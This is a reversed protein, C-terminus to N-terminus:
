GKWDEKILGYIASDLYQGDFYYDQRFHAEKIFGLKTLLSQSASNLPNTNAMITHLKLIDFGFNIICKGAETAIGKNWYEQKLAYGVEGRNNKKDIRWLGMYGIAEPSEKLKLIWNIGKKNDFDSINEKIKNEIDSISKPPHVDLYKMVETDTRLQYMDEAHDLSHRVLQLRETELLPFSDFVAENM